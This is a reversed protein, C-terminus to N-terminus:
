AMRNFIPRQDNQVSRAANPGARVAVVRPWYEGTHGEWQTFLIHNSLIIKLKKMLNIHHQDENASKYICATQENISKLNM